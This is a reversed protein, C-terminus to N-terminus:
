SVESSYFQLNDKPDPIKNYLSMMSDAGLDSRDYPAKFPVMGSLSTNHSLPYSEQVILSKKPKKREEGSKKAKIQKM